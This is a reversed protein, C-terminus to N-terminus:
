QRIICEVFKSNNRKECSNVFSTKDNAPNDYGGKGGVNGDVAGKKVLQKWFNILFSKSKM